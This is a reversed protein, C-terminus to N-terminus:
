EKPDIWEHNNRILIKDEPGMTGSRYLQPPKSKVKDVIPVIKKIIRDNSSGFIKKSLFNLM